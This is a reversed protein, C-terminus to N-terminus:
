RKVISGPLPITMDYLPLSPLALGTCALTLSLIANASASASDALSRAM